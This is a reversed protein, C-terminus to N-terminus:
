IKPISQAQYALHRQLVLDLWNWNVPKYLIEAAGADIARDVLVGHLSAAVAIVPIDRTLPDAKLLEMAEVATDGLMALEVVIVNPRTARAQKIAEHNTVAEVTDYGSQQLRVVLLKRVAVDDDVVLIKNSVARLCEDDDGLGLSMM